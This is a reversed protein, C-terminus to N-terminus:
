VTMGGYEELTEGSYLRDMGRDFVDFRYAEAAMEDRPFGYYDLWGKNAAAYEGVWVWYRANLLDDKPWKRPNQTALVAKTAKDRGEALYWGILEDSLHHSEDIVVQVAVPNGAAATTDFVDAAFRAATAAGENINPIRLDIRVDDWEDALAVAEQMDSRDRAVSGNVTEWSETPGATHNVWVSAGDFTDHMFRLETTKGGGSPGGVLVHEAKM